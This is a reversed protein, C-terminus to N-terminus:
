DIASLCLITRKKTNSRDDLFKDQLKLNIITWLIQLLTTNYQSM